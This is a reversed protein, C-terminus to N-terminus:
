QELHAIRHNGRWAGVRKRLKGACLKEASLSRAQIFDQLNTLGVAFAQYM